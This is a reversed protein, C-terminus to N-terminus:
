DNDKLIHKMSKHLERVAELPTGGLGEYCDDDGEIHKSKALWQFYYPPRIDGATSFVELKGSFYDGLSELYYDMSRSKPSIAPRSTCLIETVKDKEEIFLKM